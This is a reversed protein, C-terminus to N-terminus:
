IISTGRPRFTIVTAAVTTDGSLSTLAGTVTNFKGLVPTSDSGTLAFGIMTGDASNTSLISPSQVSPTQAVLDGVVADM